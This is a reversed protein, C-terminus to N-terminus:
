KKKIHQHLHSRVLSNNVTDYLVSYKERWNLLFFNARVIILQHLRAFANRISDTDDVYVYLAIVNISCLSNYVSNSISSFFINVFKFYFHCHIFTLFNASTKKEHSRKKIAYKIFVFPISSFLILRCAFCSWLSSKYKKRNYKITIFQNNGFINAWWSIILEKFRM